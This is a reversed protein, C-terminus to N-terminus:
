LHAKFFCVWAEASLEARRKSFPDGLPVTGNQINRLDATKNGVAEQIQTKSMKTVKKLWEDYAEVEYKLWDRDAAPVRSDTYSGTPRQSAQSVLRDFELACVKFQANAAGILLTSFITTILRVAHLSM